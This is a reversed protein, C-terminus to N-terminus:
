SKSTEAARSTAVERARVRDRYINIVVIMGVGIMLAADAPNFIWPWLGTEPLMWLMDRVANYLYRDYLNGAAGATVLGLAAQWAWAKAESRTFLWLLVALAGISVIAFFWQNGKGLGFVAGTNLTLRLSLLGPLLEIPPHDPIASAADDAVRRPLRVWSSDEQEAPLAQDAISPHWPVGKQLAYVEPGDPGHELMIPVGAVNNFAWYKLGLDGGLVVLVVAVFWLIASPSRWARITAKAQGVPKTGSASDNV